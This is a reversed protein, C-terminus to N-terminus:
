HAITQSLSADLFQRLELPSVGHRIVGGEAYSIAGTEESVVVAISDNQETMGIASRHRLGLSPDIDNNSSVPLICRAAVIENGRVIVAGDHLPSNKFFLTEILASSARANIREGTSVIEDVANKRVFIMLAGVKQQSMHMCAQVFPEMNIASSHMNGKWFFLRKWFSSGGIQTKTGVLLLFHRIEPQFVIILALFGINVFQGLIESTFRMNFRSTVLWGLYIVVIAWFIRIVNTGRMLKYIQYFLFAVLLIDLVDTFHIQPLGQIM